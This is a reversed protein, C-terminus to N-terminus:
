FLGLNRSGYVILAILLVIAISTFINHKKKDQFYVIFYTAILGMILYFWKLRIGMNTFFVYAMVLAVPIASRLIVKWNYEQEM